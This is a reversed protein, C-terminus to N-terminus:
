PGIAKPVTWIMPGAALERPFIVQVDAAGRAEVVGAALENQGNADFRIGNWPMIMATAPQWSQRLATRIAAPDDSRSADIAAALTIAATFANAASNTMPTGFRSAYLDSVAKGAPSRRALEASWSCIHLIVTTQDKPQDDFGPGFGIVPLPRALRAAVQTMATAGPQSQVLALMVDARDLDIQKALDNVGTPGSLDRQQDPKNFTRQTAVTYGAREAFDRVVGTAADQAGAETLIAVRPEAIDALQRQLLGFTTEVLMRDSPVTRFYWDMGLETVYDATSSADVLPVRLRQTQSGVAAAVEASDAVMVAATHNAVMGTAENAADGPMGTTDSSVLALQRGALSPLGVGAAFSVPLQPYSQNVVDVALQAGRVADTGAGAGPGTVPALLGITVPTPAGVAQETGTCGGLVATVLLGCVGACTRRRCSGLM